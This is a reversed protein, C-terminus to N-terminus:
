EFPETTDLLLTSTETEAVFVDMDEGVLGHARRFTEGAEFEGDGDGDTINDSDMRFATEGSDTALRVRVNAATLTTGGNHTLTLTTDTVEVVFDVRPTQEDTDGTLNSVIGASVVTAVVVVIGVLLVTGIVESQSRQCTDLRVVIERYNQYYIITRSKKVENKKSQKHWYQAV